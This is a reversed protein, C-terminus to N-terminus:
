IKNKDIYENYANFILSHYELPNGRSTLYTKVFGVKLIDYITSYIEPDDLFVGPLIIGLLNEKKLKLESNLIYEITSKRDDFNTNDESKVLSKYCQAEFNLVPLHDENVSDKGLIYNENNGYYISLLSRVNNNKPPINFDSLEMRPHFYRQRFEDSKTFAGSDFPFIKYPKIGNYNRVIFCVPFFMPNNYSGSKNLRYSPKGYFMYLLSENLFVDCPTLQLKQTKIINRFSYGDSVHLLPLIDPLNNSNPKLIDAFM